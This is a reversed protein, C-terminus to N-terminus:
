SNADSSNGNRFLDICEEKMENKEGGGWLNETVRLVVQGTNADFLVFIDQYFCQSDTKM